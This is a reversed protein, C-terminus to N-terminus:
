ILPYKKTLEAVMGQAKEVNAEDDIVMAIIEAIKAMDEEVM